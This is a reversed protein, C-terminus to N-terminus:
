LRGSQRDVANMRRFHEDMSLDDTIALPDAAHPSTGLPKIPARASSVVRAPGSTNSVAELRGEIKGMERYTEAPHLTSLRQSEQPNASLWQIIEVGVPSDKVLHQMPLSMPTDLDLESDFDPNNERAATLKDTWTSDLNSQYQQMQHHKDDVQRQKQREDDRVDSVFTAMAMSYDEIKTFQDVTPVGPMSKFRSWESGHPAPEPAPAPAEPQSMEAIRAEAAEARREAVRQKNVASSVAKSASDSRSRKKEPPKDESLTVPVEAVPDTSAVPDDEFAAQIQEPTEHNSDITIDGDTVQGAETDM